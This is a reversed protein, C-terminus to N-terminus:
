ENIQATATSLKCPFVLSEKGQPIGQPPRLHPPLLLASSANHTPPCGVCTEAQESSERRGGREKNLYM